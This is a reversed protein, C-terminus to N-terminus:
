RVGGKSVKYIYNYNYARHLSHVVSILLDSVYNLRHLTSCLFQASSQTCALTSVAFNQSAQANTYLHAIKEATKVRLQACSKWENKLM